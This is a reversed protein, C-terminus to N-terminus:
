ASAKSTNSFSRETGSYVIGLTHFCIARHLSFSQCLFTADETEEWYEEEEDEKEEKAEEEEEDDDDAEATVTQKPPKFSESM